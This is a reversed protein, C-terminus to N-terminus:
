VVSSLGLYKQCKDLLSMTALAESVNCVHSCDLESSESGNILASTERYFSDTAPDDQVVVIETDAQSAGSRWGWRKGFKYSQPGYSRGRGTVIGYGDTGNIQFSFDSRWRVASSRMTFMTGNKDRMVLHVEEEIGTNWFGKWSSGGVLEPQGDAILLILDLLHVGPDILAGGGCKVPDLKWSTEMGPANGHGLTLDVSILDGFKGARLDRFAAEIGAFFRYNFGVALEATKPCSKVISLCENLSRGLPKEVLINVGRKLCDQIVSFTQHHPTCIFVWEPNEAFLDSLETSTKTFFTEEVQRLRSHDPDVVLGIEVAGSTEGNLLKLAALREMGILGAGVVSVRV